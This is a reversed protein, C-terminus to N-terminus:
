CNLNGLKNSGFGCVLFDLSQSLAGEINGELLQLLLCPSHNNKDRRCSTLPSSYPVKKWLSSLPQLDLLWSWASHVRIVSLNMAKREFYSNHLQIKFVSSPSLKWQTESCCVRIFTFCYYPSSLYYQLKSKQLKILYQTLKELWLFVVFIFHFGVGKETQFFLEPDYLLKQM